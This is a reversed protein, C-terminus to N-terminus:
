NNKAIRNVPPTKDGKKMCSSISKMYYKTEKIRSLHSVWNSYNLNSDKVDIRSYKLLRRAGQNYAGAVSLYFEPDKLDEENVLHKLEFFVRKKLYYLYLASLGISYEPKYLIKKYHHKRFDIEKLSHAQLYKNWLLYMDKFVFQLYEYSTQEDISQTVYSERHKLASNMDKNIKEGSKLVAREGARLAKGLFDYTAPIFQAIGLAGVHSRAEKVFKSERFVLCSQLAFPLEFNTSAQLLLNKYNTLYDETLKSSRQNTYFYLDLEEPTKFFNDGREFPFYVLPEVKDLASDEYKPYLESAPNLVFFAGLLFKSFNNKNTNFVESVLNM